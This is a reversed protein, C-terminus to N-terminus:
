FVWEQTQLTKRVFHAKGLLTCSTTTTTTGLSQQIHGLFLKPLEKSLWSSSPFHLSTFWQHDTQLNHVGGTLLTCIYALTKSRKPVFSFVSLSLSKLLQLIFNSQYLHSFLSLCLCKLLQLICNSQYLHSFLSLSLSKLLQLIFISQYLHPSLSLSLSLSLEVVSFNFFICIHLWIM